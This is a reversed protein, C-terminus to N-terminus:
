QSHHQTQTWAGDRRRPPPAPATPRAGRRWLEWARARIDRSGNRDAHDVFGCSRCAFRARVRNLEWGATIEGDSTTATDVVGLGIGPFGAPDTHPPTEPVECTANLFWRGDRCILDSGGERYRALTAPREASATFAVGKMRGGTTWVPVTRGTVQWSLMRDDFPQAGRPRFARAGPDASPPTTSGSTM